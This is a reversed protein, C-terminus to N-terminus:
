KVSIGTKDKKHERVRYSEGKIFIPHCHHVLRDIIATALVKDFFITDWEEFSKNSTIVISKREYRKSIIEFFDHVTHQSLPKFGLEDLVLLDPRFYYEIKKYYSGDAKSQHLVEMMESVTTFLVKYGAMLAKQAISAALHTKGTGPQGMLIINENKEIFKCTALDFILKRNLGPQFNFEYDELTKKHPLHAKGIRKKFSNSERNSVEDELLLELFESYSLKREIAEKNRVDLSKAIGALKLSRLTHNIHEM